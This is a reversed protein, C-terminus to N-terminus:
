DAALINHYFLQTLKSSSKSYRVCCGKSANATAAIKMETMPPIIPREVGAKPRNKRPAPLRPSTAANSRVMTCTARNVVPLSSAM